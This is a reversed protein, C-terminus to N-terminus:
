ANEIDGIFTHAIPNAVFVRKREVARNIEVVAIENEKTIAHALRAAFWANPMLRPTEQGCTKSGSGCPLLALPM